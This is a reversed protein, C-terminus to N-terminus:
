WPPPFASGHELRSGGRGRGRRGSRRVTGAGSSRHRRALERLAVGAGEADWYESPVMALVIIERGPDEPDLGRRQSTHSM